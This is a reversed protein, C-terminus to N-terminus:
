LHAISNEWLDMGEISINYTDGSRAISVSGSTVQTGMIYSYYGYEVFFVGPENAWHRSIQYNGAPEQVNDHVEIYIYM